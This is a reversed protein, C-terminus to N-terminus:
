HGANAGADAVEPSSPGAAVAGRSGTLLVFQMHSDALWFDRKADLATISARAHARTADLLEFVSALMGNYRLLEEESIKARLPVITRQYHQALELKSRYGIYAERVESRANIALSKLKEVAQMYAWKARSRKADGPDFIPIVIELEFGHLHNKVTDGDERERETEWNLGLDLLNLISTFGTLGWTEKLAEVDKRAARIDLRRAVATAEYNGFQRPRGPLPPLRWPLKFAIEKGWLGMTRILRERAMRASARAEGRQGAIEALAARIKAQDLETMSGAEALRRSLDDAAKAAEFIRNMLLLRERAAVAEVWAAIVADAVGAIELAAQYRTMEAKNKAIESRGGITALSLISIMAQRNIELIGHTAVREFSIVPNEIRGAQAVDAESIGVTALTAQIAPNRLFALRVAGNRTLPEGLLGRVVYDSHERSETTRHWVVPANARASVLANVHQFAGEEDPRACAALLTAATLVVASGARALKHISAM